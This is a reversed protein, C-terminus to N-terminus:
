PSSLSPSTLRPLPHSSQPPSSVARAPACCCSLQAQQWPSLASFIRERLKDAQARLQDISASLDAGTSTEIERLSDIRKNLEVIPHEFELVFDM